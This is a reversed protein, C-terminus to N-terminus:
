SLRCVRRLITTFSVRAINCSASNSIPQVVLTSRATLADFSISGPHVCLKGRFIQATNITTGRCFSLVKQLIFHIAGRRASLEAETSSWKSPTVYGHTADHHALSNPTVYRKCLGGVRLVDVDWTMGLLNMAAQRSSRMSPCEIVVCSGGRSAGKQPESPTVYVQM